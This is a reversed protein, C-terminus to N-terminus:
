AKPTDTPGHKDITYVRIPEHRGQVSIEGLYTCPFYNKVAQYTAESLVITQHLSKTAHELRSAVNVTDGIATYEMRRESGINGVVALGTNVGIGINIEPRGEARWKANLEDLAKQMGLAARLAHEEQYPDTLPTGFEVMMGDGIFKDLTGYHEFIVDIMKDFYQNLIQVVQEPPLDEALRTFDRIDSFLVTIKRREGGLQSLADSKMIKELVHSSVYKAFSAKLREREELGVTMENIANALDNFEDHTQLYAKCNLNGSGIEKVVGCLSSLSRTAMQSLTYGVVCAVLISAGLASLGYILLEMTQSHIASASIDVGISTVYKGNKDYVPAYASLWTGWPDRAINQDVVPHDISDKMEELDSAVVTEGPSAMQAPNEEADVGYVMKGPKTTSPRLTYVFKIYLDNRRNVDRITQLLKKAALYKPTNEVGPQDLGEFAAGDLEAAATSAVTLASSRISQFLQKETHLYVITLGLLSSILAIGIFAIM